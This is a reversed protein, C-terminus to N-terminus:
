DDADVTVCGEGGYVVSCWVVGGPCWDVVVTWCGNWWRGVDCWCWEVCLRGSNYRWWGVVVVGGDMWWIGVTGDRM